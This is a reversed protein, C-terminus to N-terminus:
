ILGLLKTVILNIGSKWLTGCWIWHDIQSKMFMIFILWKLQVINKVFITVTYLLLWVHCLPNKFVVYWFFSKKRNELTARWISHHEIQSKMFIIFFFESNYLFFLSFFFNHSFPHFTLPVRSPKSRWSSLREDVTRWFMGWPDTAFSIRGPCFKLRPSRDFFLSFIWSWCTARCSSLTHGCVFSHCRYPAGYRM